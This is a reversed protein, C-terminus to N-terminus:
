AAMGPNSTGRTKQKQAYAGSRTPGMVVQGWYLYHKDRYIIGKMVESSVTGSDLLILCSSINPYIEVKNVQNATRTIEFSENEKYYLIVLL